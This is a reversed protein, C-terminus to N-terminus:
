LRKFFDNKNEYWDLFASFWNYKQLITEENDYEKLNHKIHNRITSIMNEKISSNNVPIMHNVMNMANMAFSWIEEVFYDLEKNLLESFKKNIDDRANTTLDIIIFPNLFIKNPNIQEYVLYNELSSISKDNERLKIIRKIISEDIQILPNIAKKSEIEYARVLGGSFIMSDDSYYSGISIGGRVFFGNLLMLFQYTTAIIIMSNLESIFDEDNDYIPISLCLCDSFMQYDLVKSYLPNISKTLNIANISDSLSKQLRQLVNSEQNKDYETIHNKFGLIDIFTVISNETHKVNRKFLLKPNETVTVHLGKNYRIGSPSKEDIEIYCLELFDQIHKKIDTLKLDAEQMYSILYLDNVINKVPLEFDGFDSFNNGDFHSQIFISIFFSIKSIVKHWFQNLNLSDQYEYHIDKFQIKFEDLPQTLIENKKLGNQIMWQSALFTQFWGNCLFKVIDDFVDDTYFKVNKRIVNPLNNKFFIEVIQFILLYSFDKNLIFNIDLIIVFEPNDINGNFIYKSAGIQTRGISAKETRGFRKGIEIIKDRYEDTVYIESISDHLVQRESCFTLLCKIQEEIKLKLENEQEAEIEDNKKFEVYIKM